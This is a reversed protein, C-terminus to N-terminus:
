PLVQKLFIRVNRVGDNGRCRYVIKSQELLFAVIDIGRFNQAASLTITRGDVIGITGDPDFQTANDLTSGRGRAASNVNLAFAFDVAHYSAKQQGENNEHIYKKSTQEQRGGLSAQGTTIPFLQAASPGVLLILLCQVLFDLAHGLAGSLPTVSQSRFSLLCRIWM